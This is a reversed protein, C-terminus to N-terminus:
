STRGFRGHKRLVTISNNLSQMVLLIIVRESWHRPILLGSCGRTQAAAGRLWSRWRQRRSGGDTLM